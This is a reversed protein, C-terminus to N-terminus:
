GDTQGGQLVEAASIGAGTSWSLARTIARTAALEDLNAEAGDLNEHELRATGVDEWGEGPDDGAEWVQGRYLAHQFDTEHAPVVPM